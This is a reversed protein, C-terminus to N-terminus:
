AAVRMPTPEAADAPSPQDGRFSHVSIGACGAPKGRSASDPRRFTVTVRNQEVKVVRV